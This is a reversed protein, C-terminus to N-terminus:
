RDSGSGTIKGEEKRRSLKDLNVQAVDGLMLGAEHAVVAVYWLVDGLEKLLKERRPETLVGGDDRIMKKILESVEGAEGTLGLAPYIINKGQDPYIATELAKTQYINFDKM